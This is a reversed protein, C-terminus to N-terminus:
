LCVPRTTDALDPHHKTVDDQSKKVMEGRQKTRRLREHNPGEFFHSVLKYHNIRMISFSLM